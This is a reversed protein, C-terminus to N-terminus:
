PASSQATTADPARRRSAIIALPAVIFQASFWAGALGVALTHGLSQIAPVSTASLSGVALINPATSMFIAHLSAGLRRVIEDNDAGKSRAHRALGVLFIGFDVGLGCLIPLAMQNVMNLPTGSLRMWAGVCAVGFLFPLLALAVDAPRRFYASLLGVVIVLGVILVRPFDRRVVTEADHGLVPLGTLTAEPIGGLLSRITEVAAARTEQRDLDTTFFVTTLAETAPVGDRDRPLVLDALQPFALLTASDPPKAGDILKRIFTISPEFRSPAFSSAALAARFDGEVTGANVTRLTARVTEVRSPDPILAHLGFAASVGAERAKPTDLTRAVEHAARALQDPNDAHLYVLLTEPTVGFVKGIRQQADLAANPSPHMVHLDDELWSFHGPRLAIAAAVVGAMVATGTCFRRHKWTFEAVPAFSFRAGVLTIGAARAPLVCLLAPLTTVTSALVFVLGLCGIAAFDRLAPLESALLALFGAISTICAMFLPAGLARVANAGAAQANLGAGRDHEVHSMLHVGYDSGLGALMAGIVATLPTLSLSFFSHVAFAGLIGVAVPIMALPFAFPSRYMILFLAAMLAVSWTVSSIMDARISQASLAAIAYSGSLTIAMPGPDCQRVARDVVDTLQRAFDLDSPPGTGSVRILIARADASIFESGGAFTHMTPVLTRLRPAFFERLRLPDQLLAKALAAAGPGPTALMSENQALQQDIQARTFRHLLALLEDDSLFYPGAPVLQETIYTQLQPTPAFAVARVVGRADISQRPGPGLNEALRAAYARLMTARDHPSEPGEGPPLEALILLDEALGFHDLVRSLAAAAPHRDGFMGGVSADPRLRAVALTALVTFALTFLLTFRPRKVGVLLAASGITRVRPPTV